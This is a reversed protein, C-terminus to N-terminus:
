GIPGRPARMRGASVLATGSIVLLGAVAVLWGSDGPGTRPLAAPVVAPTTTTTTEPTTTTSAGAVETPEFTYSLSLEASGSALFIITWESPQGIASDSSSEFSYQVTGPGIYEAIDAADTLTETFTDVDTESFLVSDSSAPETGSELWAQCDDTHDFPELTTDPITMSGTANSVVDAPFTVPASGSVEGSPVSDSDSSRNQICVDFDMTTVVEIDVQTLTGQAPDFADFTGTGSADLDGLDETVTQTPTTDAGAPMATLAIAAGIAVAGAWIRRHQMPNKAKMEDAKM